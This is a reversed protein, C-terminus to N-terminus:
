QKKKKFLAMGYALGVLILGTIVGHFVTWEPRFLRILIIGFVCSELALAIIFVDRIAELQNPFYEALLVIGVTFGITIGLMEVPM